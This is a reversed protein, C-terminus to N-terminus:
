MCMYRFYRKNFCLISHMMSNKRIKVIHKRKPSPVLFLLFLKPFIKIPFHRRKGSLSLTKLTTNVELMSAVARAGRSQIFNNSIDKSCCSFGFTKTMSFIYLKDFINWNLSYSYQKGNTMHM